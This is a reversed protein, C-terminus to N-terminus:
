EDYDRVEHMTALDYTPIRFYTPREPIPQLFRATIEIEEELSSKEPPSEPM